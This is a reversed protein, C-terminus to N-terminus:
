SRNATTVEPVDRESKCLIVHPTNDLFDDFEEECSPNNCCAFVRGNIKVRFGLTLECGCILCKM